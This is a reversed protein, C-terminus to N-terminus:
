PEPYQSPSSRRCAGPTPTVSLTGAPQVVLTLHRDCSVQAAGLLLTRGSLTITTATTVPNGSSDILYAQTDGSQLSPTATTASAIAPSLALGIAVAAAVLIKTPM